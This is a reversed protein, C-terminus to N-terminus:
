ECVGDPCQCEGSVCVAREYVCDADTECRVASCEALVFSTASGRCCAPCNMIAYTDMTVNLEFCPTSEQSCVRSPGECTVSESVSPTSPSTKELTARCSRGRADTFLHAEPSTEKGGACAAVCSLLTLARWACSGLSSRLM